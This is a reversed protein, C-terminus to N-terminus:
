DNFQVKMEENMNQTAVLMAELKRYRDMLKENENLAARMESERRQLTETLEEIIQDAEKLQNSKQVTKTKGKTEISSKEFQLSDIRMKAEILKQQLRDNQLLLDGNEKTLKALGGNVQEM